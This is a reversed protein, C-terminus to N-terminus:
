FLLCRQSQPWVTCRSESVRLCVRTQAAVQKDTQKVRVCQCVFVCVRDTCGSAGGGRVVRGASDGGPLPSRPPTTERSPPPTKDPSRELPPPALAADPGAAGREGADRPPQTEGSCGRPGSPLLWRAPGGNGGLELGGGRPGGHGLDGAEVRAETLTPHQQAIGADGKSRRAGRGPKGVWGEKRPGWHM